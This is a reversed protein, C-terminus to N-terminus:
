LRNEAAKKMDPAIDPIATPTMPVMASMRIKKSM